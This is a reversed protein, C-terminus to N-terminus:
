TEEAHDMQLHSRAKRIGRSFPSIYMKIAVSHMCCSESDINVYLAAPFTAVTNAAKTKEIEEPALM